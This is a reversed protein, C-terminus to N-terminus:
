INIFLFKTVKNLTVFIVFAKYRSLKSSHPITYTNKHTHVHAHKYPMYSTNCAFYYASANYHKNVEVTGPPGTVLKSGLFTLAVITSSLQPGTLSLSCFPIM